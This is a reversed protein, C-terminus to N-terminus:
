NKTGIVYTKKGPLYYGFVSDPAAECLEMQQNIKEVAEFDRADYAVWWEKALLQFYEKGTVPQRNPAQLFLILSESKDCSLHLLAIFSLALFIIKRM